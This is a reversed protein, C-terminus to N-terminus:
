LLTPQIIYNINMMLLEIFKKGKNGNFGLFYSNHTNRFEYTIYQSFGKKTNDKFDGKIRGTALKRWICNDAIFNIIEDINFFIWNENNKQTLLHQIKSM